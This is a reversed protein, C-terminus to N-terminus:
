VQALPTVRLGISELVFWLKNVIVLESKLTFSLFLKDSHSRLSALALALFQLPLQKQQKQLM